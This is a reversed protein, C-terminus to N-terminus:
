IHAYSIGKSDVKRYNVCEPCQCHEETDGCYGWKSCCYYEGSPDCQAPSGDPLPVDPGCRGDDRIIQSRKTDDM